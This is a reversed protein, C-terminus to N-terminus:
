WRSAAAIVSAWDVGGVGPLDSSMYPLILLPVYPVVAAEWGFHWTQVDASPRQATLWNTTGYVVVFILSLFISTAAAKRILVPRAAGDVSHFNRM